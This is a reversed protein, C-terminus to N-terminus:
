APLEIGTAAIAEGVRLRFQEASFQESQGMLHQSLASSGAPDSLLAEIIDVCEEVTRFATDCGLQAVVDKPGGGGFVVPICGFSAAEVPTIGFHEMREPFELEDVGMGAAHILIASGQYLQALDDHSINPHFSCNLGAALDQLERFRERGEATPHISGALALELGTHMRQNLTRFAEIVVDQRKNHGGAFFRGVTLIRKRERWPPGPRADAWQAPPPIVRIPPASLGYHRILGNVHRRVFESYVWIESYDGLRHGYREVEEDPVWFPFQLLYASRLGFREIPPVISNGLVVVFQCDSIDVAGFPLPTAAPRAFGFTSSIQAVRISSYAHPTSFIVNDVGAADSLFAALEFMVREGGGPVLPYPSFLVYPPRAMRRLPRHPARLVSRPDPDAQPDAVTTALQRKALWPGWKAVFRARNIESINQLQLRRDSTTHSEIHTVRALPNVMVKGCSTWLKLCLDTDEYYAPEWEFGFGGVRLFDARRMMLCAASCFDVACPTDFHDPGWVTGKGIQVVDGTALAVGGVEQVRGDPYLFMPGVAAVSPDDEMTAALMEIWGPHVFADNNLFVIYDSSTHDVGINNGESFYRNEGVEVLTFRNARNHERLIEVEAEVSGNDVVIIDSILQSDARRLAELCEVTTEGQNYNLIIVSVNRHFEAHRTEPPM